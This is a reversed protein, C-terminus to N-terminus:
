VSQYKSKFLAKYIEEHNDTRPNIIMNQSEMYLWLAYDLIKKAEKQKDDKLGYRSCYKIIDKICAGEFGNVPLDKMVQQIYEIPQITHAYHNSTDTANNIIPKYVTLATVPLTWTNDAKEEYGDKYIELEVWKDCGQNYKSDYRNVRFMKGICNNCETSAPYNVKIYHECVGLNFKEKTISIPSGIYEVNCSSYIETSGNSFGILFEIDDPLSNNIDTIIGFRKIVKVKVLDGVKPMYKSM